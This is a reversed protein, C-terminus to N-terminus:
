IITINTAYHLPLIKNEDVENIRNRNQALLKEVRETNGADAAEHVAYRLWYIEKARNPVQDISKVDAGQSLLLRICEENDKGWRISYELADNVDAKNAILLRAM